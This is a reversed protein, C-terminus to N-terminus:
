NAHSGAGLSQKEGFRTPTDFRKLTMPWRNEPAVAKDSHCGACGRQEGPRSWIWGHEARMTRGAADLLEFRVAQDAPVEVYFSGDKEVPAEGLIKEEQSGAELTMVRVRAIVGTVRGGPEDAAAYSDLSILYGSKLEKNVMSWFKKPVARKGIAVAQLSNLKEDGYIRRGIAKKKVDFAYLEFKGDAHGTLNVRRAVIIQEASLVRPSGYTAGTSSVTTEKLDGQLIETLAGGYEEAKASKAYIISGDALESAEKRIVLERHECRLSDLATGDPRLTYFMRAQAVATGAMLPSAASALIRGDRLVTELRWDGPGFTIRRLDAGDRKAVALYSSGSVGGIGAVTFAIEDDALYAARVCDGACKTIQKKETGDTRMEWIQWSEGRTKQGSFILREGDFSIEPDAVAFLEATLNVGEGAKGAGALRVLRSGEPFRTRVGDSEVRAAQVFVIDPRHNSDSSSDASVVGSDAAVGRCFLILAAM